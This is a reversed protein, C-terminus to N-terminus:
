NAGVAREALASGVTSGIVLGAHGTELGQRIAAGRFSKRVRADMDSVDAVMQGLFQEGKQWEAYTYRGRRFGFRELYEGGAKVVRKLQPDNQLNKTHLTYVVRNSIRVCSINIVGNAEDPAVCWGWEPYARDLTDAVRKVLVILNATGVLDNVDTVVQDVARFKGEHQITVKATM